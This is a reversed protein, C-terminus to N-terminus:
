NSDKPAEDEKIELEVTTTETRSIEEVLGGKHIDYYRYAWFLTPPLIITYGIAWFLFKTVQIGVKANIIDGDDNLAEILMWTEVLKDIDAFESLIIILAKMATLDWNHAYLFLETIPQVWEITSTWLVAVVFYLANWAVCNVNVKNVEEQEAKEHEDEAAASRDVEKCFGHRHVDVIVSEINSMIDMTRKNKTKRSEKSVAFTWKSDFWELKSPEKELSKCCKMLIRRLFTFILELPTGQVVQLEYGIVQYEILKSVSSLAGNIFMAIFLTVVPPYQCIRFSLIAVSISRLGLIDKVGIAKLFTVVLIVLIIYGASDEILFELIVKQQADLWDDIPDSIQQLAALTFGLVIVGIVYVYKFIKWCQECARTQCCEPTPILTERKKTIISDREKSSSSSSSTQGQEARQADATQQQNSQQKSPDLGLQSEMNEKNSNTSM